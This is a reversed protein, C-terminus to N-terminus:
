RLRWDGSEIVPMRVYSPPLFYAEVEGLPEISALEVPMRRYFRPHGELHDLRGLTERSVEYVEGRVGQRGSTLLGPFGGLHVLTYIPLTTVEGLFLADSLLWHNGEGKLLTGYVFVRSVSDGGGVM